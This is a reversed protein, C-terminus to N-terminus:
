IFGAICVCNRTILLESSLIECATFFLKCAHVFNRTISLESSRFVELSSFILAFLESNNIVRFLFHKTIMRFELQRSNSIESNDIVRFKGDKSRSMEDIYKEWILKKSFSSPLHRDTSGHQNECMPMIDCHSKFFDNLWVRVADEGSESQLIKRVRKHDDVVGQLVERVIKLKTEHSIDYLFEFAKQCM